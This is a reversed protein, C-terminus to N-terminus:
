LYVSSWKVRKETIKLRHAIIARIKAYLHLLLLTLRIVHKVNGCTDLFDAM